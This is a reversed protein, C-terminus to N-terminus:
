SFRISSVQLSYSLFYHELYKVVSCVIVHTVYCINIITKKKKKAVVVFHFMRSHNAYAFRTYTYRVAIM